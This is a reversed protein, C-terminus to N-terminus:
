CNEEMQTVTHVSIATTPSINCNRTSTMTIAKGPTPRDLCLSFMYFIFMVAAESEPKFKESLGSELEELVKALQRHIIDCVQEDIRHAFIKLGKFNPVSM